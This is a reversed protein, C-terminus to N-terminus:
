QRAIWVRGDDEVKWIIATEKAAFATDDETDAVFEVTRGAIAVRVKGTQGRAVPLLVTASAGLLDRETISSDVVETRLRRYVAHMAAGCVWGVAIAIALTLWPTAVLHMGDLLTGTLGFFALFFTWFRVSTVPLM